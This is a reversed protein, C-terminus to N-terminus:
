IPHHSCTPSRTGLSLVVYLQVSDHWLKQSHFLEPTKMNARDNCVDSFGLNAKSTRRLRHQHINDGFM